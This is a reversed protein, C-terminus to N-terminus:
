VSDAKSYIKMLQCLSSLQNKAANMNRKFLDRKPMTIRIDQEVCSLM